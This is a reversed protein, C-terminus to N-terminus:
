LGSRRAAGGRSPTVDSSSSALDVAPRQGVVVDEVGEQEHDEAAEFV